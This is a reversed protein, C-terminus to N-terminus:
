NFVKSTSALDFDLLPIVFLRLLPEKGMSLNKFKFIITAHYKQCELHVNVVKKEDLFTQAGRRYMEYDHGVTLLFSGPAGRGIIELTDQHFDKGYNM